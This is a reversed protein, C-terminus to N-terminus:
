TRQCGILCSKYLLENSIIVGQKVEPSSFIQEVLLLEGFIIVVHNDAFNDKVKYAKIIVAKIKSFNFATM